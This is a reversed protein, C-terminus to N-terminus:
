KKKKTVNLSEYYLQLCAEEIADNIAGFQGKHAYGTGTASIIQSSGNKGIIKCNIRYSADFRVGIFFKSSSSVRLKSYELKMTFPADDTGTFVNSLLNGVKFTGKDIMKHIETLELISSDPKIKSNEVGSLVGEFTSTYVCGNLLRTLVTIVIFQYITKAM